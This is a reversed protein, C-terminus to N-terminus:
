YTGDFEGKFLSNNEALDVMQKHVGPRGVMIRGSFLDFSSGNVDTAIAGTESAILAGAALDWPYLNVEVNGDAWGRAVLCCDLSASGTRRLGQCNRMYHEIMPLYRQPNEIRDYGCGFIILSDQLKRDNKLLQIKKGNIFAGQGRIAYFELNMAPNNVVGIEPIGDILLAVSVTFFPLGHAFNTTGDLPDICWLRDAKKVGGGEEALIGDGQREKKILDVISKESLPDFQTVLDISGKHDVEVAEEMWGKRLIEASKAAIKRAFALDQEKNWSM